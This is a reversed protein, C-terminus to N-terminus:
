SQKQERIIRLREQNSVIGAFPSSSRLLTAYEDTSELVRCIAHVGNNLINQWEILWEPCYGYQASWKELNDKGKQIVEEPNSLIRKKVVQHLAFSLRDHHTLLRDLPNTISDNLEKTEMAM